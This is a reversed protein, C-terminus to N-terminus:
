ATKKKKRGLFIKGFLGALIVGVIILPKILVKILGAKLLIKGAILGGIGYAAVKDLKPDFDRYKNGETFETAALIAKCGQAVVSLDDLDAVATYTLYGHRGLIRVDYNLTPAENTEFMLKKAWYLKHSEADYHPPEAWGLLEVTGYGKKKREESGAKTDEIMSELLEDYDMDKADDDKIHGEDSYYIILFWDFDTEAGGPAVLGLVDSDPPNNFCDELIFRADKASLFAYGEPLNLSAIGDKIEIKGSQFEIQSKIQALLEEYTMEQESEEQALAPILVLSFFFLLATAIRM